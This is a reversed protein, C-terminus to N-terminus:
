RPDLEYARELSPLAESMRNEEFAFGGLNNYLAARAPHLAL